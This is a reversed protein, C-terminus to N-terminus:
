DEDEDTSRRRRRYYDITGCLRGELDFTMMDVGAEKVRMEYKLARVITWMEFMAARSSVAPLDDHQIKVDKNILDMLVEDNELM